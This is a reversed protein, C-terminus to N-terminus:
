WKSDVVASLEFATQIELPAVVDVVLPSITTRENAADLM